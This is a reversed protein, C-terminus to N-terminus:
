KVKEKGFYLKALEYSPNNLINTDNKIYEQRVSGLYKSYYTETVLVEKDRTLDCIVKTDNIVISKKIDRSTFYLRYGKEIFRKCKTLYKTLYNALRSVNKDTIKKVHVQEGFQWLDKVDSITIDPLNFLIIHYHIAGRDQLEKVGVYSPKLNFKYGLRKIFKIFDNSAKKYDQMNEKYTLTIMYSNDNINNEIISNFNQRTRNISQNFRKEKNENQKLDPNKELFERTMKRTYNAKEIAEKSTKKEYAKVVIYKKGITMKLGLM